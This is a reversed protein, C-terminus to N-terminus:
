DKCALSRSKLWQRYGRGRFSSRRVRAQGGSPGKAFQLLNHPVMTGGREKSGSSLYILIIKSPDVKSFFNRQIYPTCRPWRSLINLFLPFVAFRRWPLPLQRVKGLILMIWRSKSILHKFSSPWPPWPCSLRCIAHQCRRSAQTSLSCGGSSPM